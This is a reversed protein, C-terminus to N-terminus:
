ELSSLIRCGDYRIRSVTLTPMLHKGAAEIRESLTTTADKIGATFTYGINDWVHVVSTRHRAICLLDFTSLDGLHMMVDDIITKATEDIAPVIANDTHKIREPGFKKYHDYVTNFVAGYVTATTNDNFIYEHRQLHSEQDILSLLRNLKLNTLWYTDAYTAVIYKAADLAQMM